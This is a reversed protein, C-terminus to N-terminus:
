RASGALTDHHYAMLSRLYTGIRNAGEFGAERAARERLAEPIEVSEAFHQLDRYAGLTFLDWAAGGVRRFILNEPRAVGRLYANEMRRQELLERRKGPVAVFMEVHYLGAGALRAEVDEIAPGRVWLEERWAVLEDWPSEFEPSREPFIEIPTARLPLLLMLDWQDGQSHRLIYGRPAGNAERRDIWEGYADILDLLRGPAARVLITRYLDSAAREPSPAETVRGPREVPPLDPGAVAPRISLLMLALTALM